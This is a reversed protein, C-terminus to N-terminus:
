AGEKPPYSRAADMSKFAHALDHRTQHVTLSVVNTLEAEVDCPLENADAASDGWVNLFFRAANATDRDNSARYGQLTRLDGPNAVGTLLRLACGAITAADTITPRPTFTM